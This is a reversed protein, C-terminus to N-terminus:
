RDLAHAVAEAQHTYFRSIGRATLAQGLWGDLSPPIPAWAAAAAQLRRIATVHLDPTDPREVPRLDRTFRELAADLAHDRRAARALATGPDADEHMAGAVRVTRPPTSEHM